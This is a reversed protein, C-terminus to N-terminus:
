FLNATDTGKSTLQDTDQRPSAFPVGMNEKGDALSRGSGTKWKMVEKRM